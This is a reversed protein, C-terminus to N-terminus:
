RKTLGEGKTAAQRKRQQWAYGILGLTGLGFLV